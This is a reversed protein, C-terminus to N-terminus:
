AMVKVKFPSHGIDFEDLYNELKLYISGNNRTIMYVSVCVAM